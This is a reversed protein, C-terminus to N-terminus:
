IGFWLQPEWVLISICCCCNVIFLKPKTQRNSLMGSV